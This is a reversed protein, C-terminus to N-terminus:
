ALREILDPADAGRQERAVKRGFLRHHDDGAVVDLM